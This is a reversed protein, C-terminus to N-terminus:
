KVNSFHRLELQTNEPSDMPCIERDWEWGMAIYAQPRKGHSEWLFSMGM